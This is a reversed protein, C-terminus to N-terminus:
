LQADREDEAMKGLGAAVIPLLLYRLGIDYFYPGVPMGSMPVLVALDLILNIGLWFLGLTLASAATPHKARMAFYLLATGTAGGIIVMLSKFLPQSVLLTGHRDFFPVSFLFPLFWSLFGFLTSRVTILPM